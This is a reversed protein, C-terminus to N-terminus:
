GSGAAADEAAARAAAAEYDGDLQAEFKDLANLQDPMTAPDARFAAIATKVIPQLDIFEQRAIPYLEVLAAVGQAILQSNGALQPITSLIFQLIQIL